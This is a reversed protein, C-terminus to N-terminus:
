FTSFIMNVAIAAAFIGMSVAPQIKLKKSTEQVKSKDMLKLYAYIILANITGEVLVYQSISWLGNKFIFSPIGFNTLIASDVVFLVRWIISASLAGKIGFFGDAKVFLRIAVAVALAEMLISAAPHVIKLTPLFPLFLDFLKIVAAVIGIYFVTSSKQTYKYGKQMFFFGIPFMIFGMLGFPLLHLAYGLVAESIGWLSGFLLSVLVTKKLSEKNM